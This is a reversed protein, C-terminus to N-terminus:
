LISLLNSTGIEDLCNNILKSLIKLGYIENDFIPFLSEFSKFLSNFSGKILNFSSILSLSLCSFFRKIYSGISGIVSIKSGIKAMVCISENGYSKILVRSFKTKHKSSNFFLM